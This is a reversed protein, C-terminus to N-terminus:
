ASAVAVPTRQLGLREARALAERAGPMDGLQWRVTALNLWAYTYDDAMASTALAAEARPLDGANAASVGLEFQYINVGPDVNVADGILQAAESWFGGNGLAVGQRAVSTAAEIRALGPHRM